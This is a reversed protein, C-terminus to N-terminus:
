QGLSALVNRMLETKVLKQGAASLGAGGLKFTLLTATGDAVVFCDYEPTGPQLGADKADFAVGLVKQAVVGLKSEPVLASLVMPLALGASQGIAKPYTAANYLSFKQAAYYASHPLRQQWGAAKDALAQPLNGNNLHALEEATPEAAWKGGAAVNDEAM